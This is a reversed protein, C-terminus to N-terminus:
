LDWRFSRGANERNLIWRNVLDDKEQESWHGPAEKNLRLLKDLKMDGLRERLLTKTLKMLSFLREVVANGIPSLNALLLLKKINPMMNEVEPKRFEKYIDGLTLEKNKQAKIDNELSEIKKRDRSAHKYKKIKM